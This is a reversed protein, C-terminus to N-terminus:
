LDCENHYFICLAINTQFTGTIQCKRKKNCDQVIMHINKNFFTGGLSNNNKTVYFNLLFVYNKM